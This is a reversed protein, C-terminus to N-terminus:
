NTLSKRYLQKLTIGVERSSDKAVQKKVRNKGPCPRQGSATHMYQFQSTAGRNTAPQRQYGRLSARSCCLVM